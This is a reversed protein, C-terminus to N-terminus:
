RDQLTNRGDIYFYMSMVFASGSMALYIEGPVQTQQSNSLVMGMVAWLGALAFGGCLLFSAELNRGRNYFVVGVTMVLGALIALVNRTDLMGAAIAGITILGGHGRSRATMFM